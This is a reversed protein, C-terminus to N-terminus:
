IIEFKSLEQNLSRKVSEFKDVRSFRPGDKLWILM